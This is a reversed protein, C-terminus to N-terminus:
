LPQEEFKAAADTFCCEEDGVIDAFGHHQGGRMARSFSPASSWSARGAFEAGGLRGFRASKERSQFFSGLALIGLSRTDKHLIVNQAGIALKRAPAMWDAM